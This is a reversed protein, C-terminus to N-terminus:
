GFAAPREIREARQDLRLSVVIRAWDRVALRYIEAAAEMTHLAEGGGPVGAPPPSGQATAYRGMLEFFFIRADFLRAQKQHMYFTADALAQEPDDLFQQALSADSIGTRQTATPPAAIAAAVAAIPKIAATM